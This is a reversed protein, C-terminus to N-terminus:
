YYKKHHRFIMEVITQLFIKQTFMTLSFLSNRLNKREGEKKEEWTVLFLQVISVNILPLM